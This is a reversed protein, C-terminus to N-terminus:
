PANPGKASATAVDEETVEAHDGKTLEARDEPSSERDSSSGGEQLEFLGADVLM